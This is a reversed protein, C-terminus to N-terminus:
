LTSDAWGPSFVLAGSAALTLGGTFYGGGYFIGRAVGIYFYGWITVPSGSVNLFTVNSGVSTWVGSVPGTPATWGTLLQRTYGAVSCETISGYTDGEVLVYNVVYLGMNYTDVALQSTLISLIDSRGLDVLM